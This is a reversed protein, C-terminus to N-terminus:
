EILLGPSTESVVDLELRFAKGTATLADLFRKRYASMEPHKVAQTVAKNTMNLSDLVGKIESRFFYETQWNM